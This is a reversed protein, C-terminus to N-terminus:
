PLYTQLNCIALKYTRWQWWLALPLVVCMPIFFILRLAFLIPNGTTKDMCSISAYKLLIAYTLTLNFLLVAGLLMAIQLPSHHFILSTLYQPAFLLNITVLTASIKQRLFTQANRHAQILEPSEATNYLDLAFLLWFLLWFPVAPALVALVIGGLYIISCLLWYQRFGSKWEFAPAPVWATARQIITYNSSTGPKNFAAVFPMVVAAIISTLWWFSPTQLLWLPLSLLIVIFLYELLLLNRHPKGLSQLFHLDKRQTHLTLLLLVIVGQALLPPRTLVRSYLAFLLLVALPIAVLITWGADKGMRFIQQLRLLGIRYTVNDQM